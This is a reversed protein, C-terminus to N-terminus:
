SLRSPPSVNTFSFVYHRVVDAWCELADAVVADGQNEPSVEDMYCGFKAHVAKESTDLAELLTKMKPDRSLVAFSGAQAFTNDMTDPNYAVSSHFDTGSTRELETGYRSGALDIPRDPVQYTTHALGSGYRHGMLYKLHTKPIRTAMHDAFGYRFSRSTFAPCITLSHVTQHSPHSVEGALLKESEM